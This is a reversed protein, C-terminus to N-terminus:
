VPRPQRRLFRSGLLGGSVGGVIGVVLQSLLALFVWEVFVDVPFSLGAEFGPYMTFSLMFISLASIGCGLASIQAAASMKRTIRGRWLGVLFFLLFLVLLYQLFILTSDEDSLFGPTTHSERFPNMTVLYLLAANLIVPCFVLSIGWWFTAESDQKRQPTSEDAM